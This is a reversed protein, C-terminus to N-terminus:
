RIENKSTMRLVFPVRTEGAVQDKKDIRATWDVSTLSAATQECLSWKSAMGHAIITQRNMTISDFTLGNRSATKLISNLTNNLSVTFPAMFPSYIKHQASMSRRASILEQRDQVLRPSGTIAIALRRLDQQITATRHKAAITWTLTTVCLLAGALLFSVAAKFPIRELAEKEIPHTFKGSLLNCRNSGKALARTALARALFTDPDHV